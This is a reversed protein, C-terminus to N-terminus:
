TLGLMNRQFQGDISVSNKGLYSSETIMSEGNARGNYFRWVEEPEWEEISTVIVQYNYGGPTDEPM